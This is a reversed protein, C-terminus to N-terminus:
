VIQSLLVHKVLLSVHYALGMLHIILQLVLPNVFEEM